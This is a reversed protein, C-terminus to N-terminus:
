PVWPLHLPHVYCYAGVALVGLAVLFGSGLALGAVFGQGAKYGLRRYDVNM